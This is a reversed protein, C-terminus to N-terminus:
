KLYKKQKKREEEGEPTGMVHLLFIQLQQVTRTYDTRNKKPRQGGQKETKSTKISIDELESIREEATDM